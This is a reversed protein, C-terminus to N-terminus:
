VCYIQIPQLRRKLTIRPAGSLLLWTFESVCESATLSRSQLNEQLHYDLTNPSVSPPRSWALKSICQSATISRTQLHVQLGHDLSSPARLRALKSLYKSTTSPRRVPRQSEIWWNTLECSHSHSLTVKDKLEWPSSASPPRDHLSSRRFSFRCEPTSKYDHSHLSSLCDLTSPTHQIRHWSMIMVHLSLSAYSLKTNQFSTLTTSSFSLAPPHLHSRHPPYWCIHCILSVVQRIPNPLGRILTIVRRIPVWVKQLPCPSDVGVGFESIDWNRMIIERM